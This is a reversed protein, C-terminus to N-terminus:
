VLGGVFALHKSISNQNGSYAANVLTVPMPWNKEITNPRDFNEIEERDRNLSFKLLSSMYNREALLEEAFSQNTLSYLEDLEEDKLLWEPYAVNKTVHNLKVLSNARTVPDLWDNEHLILERYSQQIAEVLAVAEAREAPSFHRQVYLRSVAMSLHGNAQGYCMEWRESQRKVGSSVQSFQFALQRFQESSRPGNGAVARWGVLHAVTRPSARRLLEVAKLVYQVDSIRVSQADTLAAAVQPLGLLRLTPQFLETRWNLATKESLEKLTWVNYTKDPNRQDELPMKVKALESEFNILETIDAELASCDEGCFLKGASRIYDRYATVLKANSTLNKLDKDGLGLGSPFIQFRVHRLTIMM